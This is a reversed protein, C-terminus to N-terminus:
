EHRGGNGSASDGNEEALAAEEAAREAEEQAKAAAEMEAIMAKEEEDKTLFFRTLAKELRSMWPDEGYRRFLTGMREAMKDWDSDGGGEPSGHVVIAKVKMQQLKAILSDTLEMGEGMVVMGNKQTVPKALKMGSRAAKLPINQM